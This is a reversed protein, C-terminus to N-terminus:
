GEEKDKKLEKMAYSYSDWNDVSSGELTYYKDAADQLEDLYKRLEIVEEITANNKIYFNIIKDNNIKM